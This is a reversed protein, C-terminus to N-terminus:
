DTPIRTLLVAQVNQMVYIRGKIHLWATIAVRLKIVAKVIANQKFM